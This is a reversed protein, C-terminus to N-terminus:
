RLSEWRRQVDKWLDFLHHIQNLNEEWVLSSKNEEEFVKYYPSLKMAALSYIQKEVKNFFDDWGSIGQCKNQSIILELKYTKWVEVEELFEEVEELFEVEMEGHTVIIVDVNM